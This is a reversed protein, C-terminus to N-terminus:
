NGRKAQNRRYLGLAFTFLWIMYMIIATRQILGVWDMFIDRAQPFKTAVTLLLVAAAIIMGAAFTWWQYSRWLPAQRFLRQFVFCSIPMLLFVIGGFIGHLTGHLSMQSPLTGVPDMVFPGSVLYCTAIIALLIPGAHVKKDKNFETMVGGTFVLFLVGFIMFNAM